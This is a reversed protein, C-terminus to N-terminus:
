SAINIVVKGFAGRELHQFASLAEGFAYVRDIVPRLQYRALARNMDEFARRPGAGGIGRIVVEKQLMPVIEVASTPRELFGIVSIQGAVKVARISRALSDGGVVELVHDVGKQSTLDLVADEWNPVRSYNIGHEVGLAKARVLKEESSSTVIAKAGLATTLQLGFLSVGGTGQILVTQGPKLQAKEVLAYWATLAAVPLTSAGEDSLYEPKAVLAQEDLVIYEALAGSITNGLTHVSRDAQPPGDLWRTAYHTAVRDGLRFRTVNRGRAVVEGAADAVPIVPFRLAPNYLGDYLLKDRYNLSVANIRVLGENPAPEPVAREALKLHELGFGNLEWAKM